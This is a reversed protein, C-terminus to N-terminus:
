KMEICDLWGGGGRLLGVQRLVRTRPRRRLNFFGMRLVAEHRPNRVLLATRGRELQCAGLTNVKVIRISLLDEVEVRLDWGPLCGHISPTKASVDKGTHM